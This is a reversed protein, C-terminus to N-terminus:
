QIPGKPTFMDELEKKSFHYKENCYHCVLETTEDELLSKKDDERLTML